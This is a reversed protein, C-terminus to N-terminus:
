VEIILCGFKLVPCFIQVFIQPFFSISTAFLHIFLNEANHIMLSTYILDIGSLYGRCVIYRSINILGVIRLPQRPCLGFLVVRDQM